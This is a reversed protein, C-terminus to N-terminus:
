SQFDSQFPTVQVPVTTALATKRAWELADDLNEVQIISLGGIQEKGESFPGDTIVVEDGRPSVVTISEPGYLGGGFVWAGSAELEEHLATVNREIKQMEEPPPMTSGPPYIITLLYTKM